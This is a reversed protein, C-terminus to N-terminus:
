SLHSSSLLPAHVTGYMYICLVVSYTGEDSNLSWWGREGLRTYGGGGGGSGFPSPVCEGALSPNPSDWNRRSSFFSLVRCVRHSLRYYKGAPWTSIGSFSARARTGRPLRECSESWRCLLVFIKELKAAFLCDLRSSM